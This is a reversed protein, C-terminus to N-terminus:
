LLLGTEPRGQGDELIQRKQEKIYLWVIPWIQRCWAELEEESLKAAELLANLKEERSWDQPRKEQKAM